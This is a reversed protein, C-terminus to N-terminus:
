IYIKKIKIKNKNKLSIKYKYFSIRFWNNKMKNNINLYYINIFGTKKIIYNININKETKMKALYM